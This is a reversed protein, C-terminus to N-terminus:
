KGDGRPADSAADRAARELSRKVEDEVARSLWESQSLARMTVSMAITRLQSAFTEAVVKRINAEIFEPTLTESVVTKIADFTRESYDCLHQVLNHQMHDIQVRVVPTDFINGM